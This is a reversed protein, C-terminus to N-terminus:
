DSYVAVVAGYCGGFVPYLQVIVDVGGAFYIFVFCEAWAIAICSGFRYFFCLFYVTLSPPTAWDCNCENVSETSIIKFIPYYYLYIKFAFAYCLIVTVSFNVISLFLRAPCSYFKFVVSCLPDYYPSGITFALGKIQKIIGASAM